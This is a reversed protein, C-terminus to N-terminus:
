ADKEDVTGVTGFPSRIPLKVMRKGEIIRAVVGLEKRARKYTREKIDADKVARQLDKSPMWEGPKLTELLFAKAEDLAGREDHSDPVQAALLEDATYPSVGEWAIKITEIGGIQMKEVRYALSPVEHVEANNSKVLALVRRVQDQPDRGVLLVSRVSGAIGISGGLRYLASIGGQAKNLHSIAVSAAMTRELVPKLPGLVARVEQDKWMNARGMVAALPDLGLMKAGTELLAAEIQPRHDSLAPLLEQGGAEITLIEVMSLNAGAAELRPRLTDAADDEVSVLLVRGPGCMPKDEGPMARGTTLRAAIDLMLTSKLNGPDGQIITQKGFAIRHRWLWSVPKATVSSMPTLIHTLYPRKTPPADGDDAGPERQGLERPQKVGANLGTRVAARADAVSLGGDIGVAEMAQEAETRSLGGGGVLRGMGFAGCRLLEKREPVTAQAIAARAADIEQQAERLM